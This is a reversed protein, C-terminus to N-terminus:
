FVQKNLTRKAVKLDTESLDSRNLELLKDIKAQPPAANAPSLIEFQNKILQSVELHDLLPDLPGLNLSTCDELASSLVVAKPMSKQVDAVVKDLRASGLYSAAYEQASQTISTARLHQVYCSNLWPKAARTGFFFSVEAAPFINLTATYIANLITPTAAYTKLGRRGPMHGSLDESSLLLTGTFNLFKQLTEATEFQVIGLDWASNSVSYLRAAECLGVMGDRLVIRINPGLLSKNQCLTKQISTTGTKHFGAHIVIRKPMEFYAM